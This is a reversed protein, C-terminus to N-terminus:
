LLKSYINQGKFPCFIQSSGWPELVGWRQRFFLSVHIMVKEFFNCYRCYVNFIWEVLKAMAGGVERRMAGGVDRRGRQVAARQRGHRWLSLACLRPRQSAELSAARLPWLSAGECEPFLRVARESPWMGYANPHPKHRSHQVRLRDILRLAALSFV